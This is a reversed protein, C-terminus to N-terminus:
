LNYVEVLGVGTEGNAGKVITTYAGAPLRLMTASEADDDPALASQDIQAASIDDHWDDNSAIATGNADYVTLMPDALPDSLGASALSPGVARVVVTASNVNGIIFGSILVNNGTGVFGRSSINALNSDSLPSLDYAELLGIGTLFNKGTAVVTYAGPALTKMTAAEAPDTPSLGKAAIQAAAADTQWNDNRGIAVGSSNFLTLVPDPISGPVGASGLSPGLVRLIVTQPASGKVIFGGILSEENNGIFGRTSLNLARAEVTPFRTSELHLPISNFLTDCHFTSYQYYFVKQGAANLALLQGYQTTAAPGNVDAYDILYNLPADEYISGCIPSYVSQNMEYNWVETATKHELDLKYKRPSAYDRNEGPPMQLSSRFGNDFLLLHQDYTISLGHQGIPPLSGSPLTLAFQRLSAFQHWKKTPDGLIWKIAGTEYDLAIVFSERSSVLVTDDARNYTCSNNHFWDVPASYIFGTPDEGGATIADRLIDAMDYTKLVDGEGNVELVISEVQTATEAELLLGNKGHDINHHLLTVGIDAYDHLQTVTGDLDIRVLKTGDAQYVANDFFATTAEAVNATGVWRLVGDTDIIAPSFSSCGGKILIYDYSLDANPAKAQLKTPTKYGCPDTFTTAAITTTAHKSSGDNFLYTLTVTNNYGDYLGYVPLSIEGTSNNLDGHAVLYAKSYSGSLPRTTSGTKPTIAFSISNIPSTDSAMLTLRNIFPTVGPSQATITITTDDAQTANVSQCAFYAIAGVVSLLFVNKIM